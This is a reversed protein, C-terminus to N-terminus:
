ADGGKMSNTVWETFMVPHIRWERGCRVAPANEHRIMRYMWAKPLNLYHAADTVSMFETVNPQTDM